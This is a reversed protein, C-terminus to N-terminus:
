TTADAAAQIEAEVYASKLVVDVSTRGSRIPLVSAHACGVDAGHREYREIMRNVGDAFRSARDFSRFPGYTHAGDDDFRHRVFVVYGSM